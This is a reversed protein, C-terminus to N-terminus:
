DSYHEKHCGDPIIGPGLAPSPKKEARTLIIWPNIEHEQLAEKQEFRQDPDKIPLAKLMPVKVALSKSSLRKLTTFPGSLAWTYITGKLIKM